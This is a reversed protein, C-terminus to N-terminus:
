KMPPIKKFQKGRVALNWAEYVKEENYTLWGVVIKYQKHPLEGALLEGDVGISANYDGYRVHVHPKNHQGKDEFFLYIIMGGFRCLEPM